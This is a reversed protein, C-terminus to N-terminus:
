ELDDSTVVVTKAVDLFIFPDKFSSVVCKDCNTHRDSMCVKCLFGDGFAEFHLTPKVSKKIYSDTYIQFQPM